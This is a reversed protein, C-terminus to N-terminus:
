QSIDINLDVVVAALHGAVREFQEDGPVSEFYRPLGLPERDVRFRGVRVRGSLPQQVGKGSVGGSM